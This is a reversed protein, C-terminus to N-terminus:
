DADQWVDGPFDAVLREYDKPDDFVFYDWPMDDGTCRYSSTKIWMYFRRYRPGYGRCRYHRTRNEDDHWIISLVDYESVM